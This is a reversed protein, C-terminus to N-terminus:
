VNNAVAEEKAKVESLDVVEANTLPNKLLEEQHKLEQYMGSRQLLLERVRAIEKQLGFITDQAQKINANGQDIEKELEAKREKIYDQTM